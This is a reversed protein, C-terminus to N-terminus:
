ERATKRVQDLMHQPNQSVHQYVRALMGPDRHGLLIGVTLGDLGSQLAATAFSHRMTYLCCRPAFHALACNTLKRLEIKSLEEMSRTDGQRMLEQQLVNDISIGQKQLVTKAMRLQLAHFVRHISDLKVPTGRDTRFLRGEPFRQVLDKTIKEAKPTLYVVRPQRKGKSESVPFVWRAYVADYHRAEVRTIEQPRCGTEFAVLCLNRFWDQPIHSLMTDFEERSLCLERRDGSPIELDKLPYSSIYGQRYAWNVCRKISKLYHRRSTKALHPYSDVWQQCHYPRVDALQLNPYRQCFREVRYRYFDFTGEARHPKLWQLFADAVAVFSMSKHPNRDRKGM